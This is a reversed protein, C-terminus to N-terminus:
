TFKKKYKNDYKLFNNNVASDKDVSFKFLLRDVSYNQDGKNISRLIIRYRFINPIYQYIVRFPQDIFKNFLITQGSQIFLISESSYFIPAQSDSLIYNTLNIASSGNEFVIKVPSYSSYDFNGFSSKTTTITGNITSYVANVLKEQSIYPAYTLTCTKDLNTKEFREGNLGDFSVNALVPNASSKSFLFIEKYSDINIPTYAVHYKKNSNYKSIQINKGNINYLEYNVETSDEYLKVSEQLPLFRLLAEGKLNPFLVEGRISRDQYPIIPLWDEEAIPNDKVSVSFEAGTNDFQPNNELYSLESFYEAYMKVKMPLGEIPIKKSVFFSKDIPSSSPSISSNMTTFEDGKSFFSINKISFVYEYTGVDEVNDFFESSKMAGVHEISNEFFHSNNETKNSDSLPIIGGSQYKYIDKVVDTLNSEIYTRSVMSRLKSGLSYSVISFVINSLITTNKFQNLDDIDSFFKKSKFQEMVGVNFDEYNKPYYDTYDYYYLKKNRTIYDAAFDKLFYKIVLDQLKDHHKKRSSRIAASIQNVMKGNIESQIPTMKTRLYKNQGFFLVISKASENGSLEIDVSNKIRISNPLLQYGGASISSQTNSSSTNISKVLIQLLDLDDSINPTIRIRSINKPTKFVIEIGIQASSSIENQIKFSSFINQDFINEKIIMPSKVTLNWIHSSSSNLIKKIGHIALSINM